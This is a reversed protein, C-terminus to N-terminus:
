QGALEAERRGDRISKELITQFQPDIEVVFLGTPHFLWLTTRHNVIATFSPLSGLQFSFYPRCGCCKGGVFAARDSFRLARALQQIVAEDDIVVSFRETETQQVDVVLRRTSQLCTRAFTETPPRLIDGRWLVVLGASITIVSLVWFRVRPM